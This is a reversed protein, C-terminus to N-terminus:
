GAAAWFARGAGGGSGAAGRLVGAGLGAARGVGGGGGGVGEPSAVPLLALRVCPWRLGPSLSAFRAQLAHCASAATAHTSATAPGPM